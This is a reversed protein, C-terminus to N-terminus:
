KADNTKERKEKRSISTTTITPLATSINPTGTRPESGASATIQTADDSENPPSPSSIADRARVVSPTDPSVFRTIIGIHTSDPTNKAEVFKGAAACGTM